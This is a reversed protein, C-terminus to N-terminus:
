MSSAVAVNAKNSLATITEPYGQPLISLGMGAMQGDQLDLLVMLLTEIPWLCGMIINILISLLSLDIISSRINTSKM